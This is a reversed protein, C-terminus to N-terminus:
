SKQLRVAEICNHFCLHHPLTITVYRITVAQIQVTSDSNFWGHFIIHFYSFLPLPFLTPPLCSPSAILFAEEWSTEPTSWQSSRFFHKYSPIRALHDTVGSNGPGIFFAPTYIIPHQAIKMWTVVQKYMVPPSWAYGSSPLFNQYSNEACVEGTCTAGWIRRERMNTTDSTSKTQVSPVLLTQAQTHSGRLYLQQKMICNENSVGGKPEIWM